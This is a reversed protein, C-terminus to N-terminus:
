PTGERVRASGDKCAGEGDADGPQILVSAAGTVVVRESDLDFSIEEGRVRDCGELVEAQGRCVITSAVREYRAQECRARRDGQAVRVRGSALLLDPQSAGQPYLAELRDANLRLKGQQVDVNRTFVLRRGGDQPLVELEDSHIQIPDDHRVGPLLPLGVATDDGRADSTTDSTASPAAGATPAASSPTATPAPAAVDPLADTATEAQEGLDALIVQALRDVAGPLAEDTEPRLRYEARAVGSHGSCLEVSVDLGGRTGRQTRGVIVDDVDNSRAWRRVDGAEPAGVDPGERRLSAPRVIRRPSLRALEDALRSAVDPVAADGEAIFPAVAIGRPAPPTDAALPAASALAFALGLGAALTRRRM